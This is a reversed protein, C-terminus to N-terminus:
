SFGLRVRDACSIDGTQATRQQEDNNECGVCVMKVIAEVHVVPVRDYVVRGNALQPVNREEETVRCGEARERAIITDGAPRSAAQM